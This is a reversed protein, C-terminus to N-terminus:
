LRLSYSDSYHDNKQLQWFIVKVRASKWLLEGEAWGEAPHRNSPLYFIGNTVIRRCLKKDTFCCRIIWINRIFHTKNTNRLTCFQLAMAAVGTSHDPFSQVVFPLVPPMNVFRKNDYLCTQLVSAARHTKSTQSYKVGKIEHRQVRYRHRNIYSLHFIVYKDYLVSKRNFGWTKQGHNPPWINLQLQEDCM